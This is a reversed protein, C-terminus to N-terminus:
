SAEVPAAAAASAVARVLAQIDASSTAAPLDFGIFDAGAKALQAADATTAGFAVCPLEFIEGWWGVREDREPGEFAIYDVGLEGATMADHRSGDNGAGVIYRTGLIERAEALAAAQNEGPPIHVGDARLTRALRADAEILAAANHSQIVEVLPRAIAADLMTGAPPVLRVSAFPAATLAASLRDRCAPGNAAQFTLYLQPAPPM